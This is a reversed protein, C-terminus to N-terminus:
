FIYKLLVTMQLARFCVHNVNCLAVATNVSLIPRFTSIFPCIFPILFAPFRDLPVFLIVSRL